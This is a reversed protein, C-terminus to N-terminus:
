SEYLEVIFCYAFYFLGLLSHHPGCGITAERPQKHPPEKGRIQKKEEHSKADVTQVIIRHTKCRYFCPKNSRLSFIRRNVVM